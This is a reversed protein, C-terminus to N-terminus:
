GSKRHLQKWHKALATATQKIQEDTHTSTIFFRLRAASEEVAPYMIPQVNVGEAFLRQSLELSQMSNGIIVPVIPTGDSMGTNLGAQKALQLFLASNHKLQAVREPKEKILELSALAAAANSPSLGVSFVFGPATYKLYEVIERCAAIYGGCSGLSKSMTGMWLDVERADVGFHESMGRGTKGMTGLSHAEDVMLYAKHEKKLRIFEPLPTFDGDMSYVGEVVILVQRYEGRYRKLLEECAAPDNHAFARRTAGSLKCGQVISNHSLADHLILDGPGYLHGIVSENTAHGGVFVVADEVGLFGAISRELERHLPKEGSVLRSASVSTGYRDVAGQTAQQVAPEGSMGLYNYSCWNIYDKGGITTRDNTIGEHQTFYPNALGASEALKLSSRLKLYEPSQNFQYDGPLVERAAPGGETLLHEEVARVVDRCTNMGLIAEESFRGGFEDELGAVIEMRELSDLGMAAIETELTAGAAREKAVERVIRMAREITSGSPKADDKAAPPTKPKAADEAQKERRAIRDAGRKRHVNLEGGLSWEAVVNLEGALYQDRCAHRQIKGSSTKPITNPRLFVIATPAVDHIATVHHRVSDLIEEFPLDRQRGMEQLVVLKEKGDDGVTIAAGASKPLSEHSDEVTQEIDQPYHNAGRIIILDKLRGTVFLEGDDLFGLDGTRLFPGDGDTTEASFTEKSLEERKWYGHAISDGKVWIEGIARDACRQHTEPDVIAAEQGLYTVGSGVIELSDDSGAQGPVARGEKLDEIQYPQITPPQWKKKGAVMLTAEALGYCPYFAEFRFGCPEFAEAFRRLTTTRVPEAGNFAVEWQTLDLGQKEEDTIRDVCLEYAFNPGGSIMAGTDSLTRLWRIPKQLFHTPTMLTNHRGFYIPQIVGGILGMDHYLPLWSLGEGARSIRFGECIVKTNHLLNGHSLMVGKPTGTSGSTYQLFALTDPSIDPEQWADAQALDLEDTCQWPIARLDQEDKIMPEVRDFVSHTTLAVAPTADDVISQIRLLNRNRRPPYAPVATVGAYLCGFFAAIFELGSPYLLLAREGAMGRSQLHAAIARAQRDLQGYTLHLRDDEGDVLYSFARQHPHSATRERLLGVLDSSECVSQFRPHDTTLM